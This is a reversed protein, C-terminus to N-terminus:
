DSYALVPQKHSPSAGLRCMNGKKTALVLVCSFTCVPDKPFAYVQFFCVTHPVLVMWLFHQLMICLGCPCSRLLGVVLATGPSSWVAQLLVIVSDM